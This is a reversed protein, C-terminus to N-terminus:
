EEQEIRSEIERKILIPLDKNDAVGLSKSIWEEIKQGIERQVAFTTRGEFLDKGADNLKKYKPNNDLMDMRTKLPVLDNNLTIDDLYHFVLQLVQVENLESLKNLLDNMATLAMHGASGAVEVVDKNVGKQELVFSSELAANNFSDKGNKRERTQEVERRKYFDHLLAAKVLKEKMELSLGLYDAIVDAAAAEVLCHEVVNGWGEKRPLLGFEKHIKMSSLHRLAIRGFYKARKKAYRDACFESDYDLKYEIM